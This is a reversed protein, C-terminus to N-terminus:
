GGFEREAAARAEVEFGSAHYGERLCQVLYVRMFARISGM